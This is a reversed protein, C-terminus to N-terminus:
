IPLGLKKAIFRCDWCPEYFKFGKPPPLERIRKQEAAALKFERLTAMGMDRLHRKEKKTLDKFYM